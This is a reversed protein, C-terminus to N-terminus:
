ATTQTTPIGIADPAAIELVSLVYLIVIVSLWAIIAILVADIWGGPYRWNIVGVWVILMLLPGLLPIGSVFWGVVALVIAGILATVIAHMYDDSGVIFKAGIYIALGGILLGVLFVILSDVLAM